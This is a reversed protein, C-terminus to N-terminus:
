CEPKVQQCILCKAVFEAIERKMGSWWYRRKLIKYMKSSRPHLAYTSSHVEELIANKLGIENPICLRKHKM